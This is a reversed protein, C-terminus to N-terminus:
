RLTSLEAEMNPTKYRKADHQLRAERSKAYYSSPQSSKARKSGSNPPPVYPQYTYKDAEERDSAQSWHRGGVKTDLQSSSLLGDKTKEELVKIDSPLDRSSTHVRTPVSPTSRSYEPVQTSRAGSNFVAFSPLSDALQTEPVTQSRVQSANHGDDLMGDESEFSCSDQTSIQPPATSHYEFMPNYQLQSEEVVPGKATTEANASHGRRSVPRIDEPAVIPGNDVIESRNRDIKKRPVQPLVPQSRESPTKQSQVKPVHISRRSEKSSPRSQLQPQMKVEAAQVRAQLQENQVEMSTYQEQLSTHLEQLRDHNTQVEKRQAEAENVKKDSKLSKQKWDQEQEQWKQYVESRFKEAEDRETDRERRVDDLQNRLENITNADKEKAKEMARRFSENLARHGAESKQLKDNVEKLEERHTEASEHTQERLTTLAGEVHEKAREAAQKASELQENKKQLESNHDTTQKTTVREGELETTRQELSSENKACVESMTKLSSELAEIKTDKTRNLKKARDLENKLGESPREKQLQSMQHKLSDIEDQLPKVQKELRSKESTLRKLDNNTKTKLQAEFKALQDALEERTRQEAENVKAKIEEPSPGSTASQEDHHQLRDQLAKMEEALAANASTLEDLERGKAELDAKTNNLATITRQLEVTTNDPEVSASEASPSKSQLVSIRAELGVNQERLHTAEKEAALRQAEVTSAHSNCTNLAERMKDVVERHNEDLKERDALQDQMTTLAEDIRDRTNAEASEAAEVNSNIRHIHDAESSVNM